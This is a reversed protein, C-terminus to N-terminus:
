SGADCCYGMLDCQMLTFSLGPRHLTGSCLVACCLVDMASYVPGWCFVAWRQVACCLMAYFLLDRCVGLSLLVHLVSQVVTLCMVNCCSAWWCLGTWSVSHLGAGCVWESWSCQLLGAPVNLSHALWCLSQHIAWHNWQCIHLQLHWYCLLEVCESTSERERNCSDLHLEQSPCHM